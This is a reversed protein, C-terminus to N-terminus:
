VPCISVALSRSFQSRFSATCFTPQRPSRKRHLQATRRSTTTHFCSVLQRSYQVTVIEFFRCGDVCITYRHLIFGTNHFTRYGKKHQRRLYLIMATVPDKVCSLGAGSSFLSFLLDQLLIIFEECWCETHKTKPLEFQSPFDMSRLRPGISSPAPCILTVKKWFHTEPMKKGSDSRQETRVELNSRRREGGTKTVHHHWFITNRTLLFLTDAPSAFSVASNPSRSYKLALNSTPQVSKHVKSLMMIWGQKGFKDTFSELGTNM